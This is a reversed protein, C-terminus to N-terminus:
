PEKEVGLGRRSEGGGEMGRRRVAERGACVGDRGRPQRGRRLLEQRRLARRLVERGRAADGPPLHHLHVPRRRPQRALRGAADPRRRHPVARGPQRRDRRLPLLAGPRLAPDRLRPGPRLSRHLSPHNAQIPAQIPLTQSTSPLAPSSPSPTLTSLLTSPPSLYTSLSRSPYPLEDFIGHRKPFKSKQGGSLQQIRQQEDHKSNFSVSIGVGTYNEVSERQEEDSDEEEEVQQRDTKRQIILRGRGAPVLTGFVTAFERSVQKFTREIAEDKRQDLVAILEEISQQSSDLEERRKTLTERQNTFQEYQQFAKKNVHSYKKLAENVKQLRSVIDDPKMKRYKAFAEQPLMGLDRIRATVEAHQKTLESKKQMSRTLRSQQKEIFKAIDEQQQRIEARRQELEEIESKAQDISEELQRQRRGTRELLKDLKKLEEKSEILKADSGAEATEYAQANLQDLRPRLHERLEIELTTKRSELESRKSSVDTYRRRLDKVMTALNELQTEEEQTLAKKFETSIEARHASQQDTLIKINADINDLARRRSDLEDMRNQLSSTQGFLQHRIPGYNNEQRQKTQELKQLEGKVVTIEQHKREVARKVEDFRQKQAEHERRCRTVNRIAEIRSRKRNNAGGSLAGKKDSKDGDLTVASVGHSRAYQSAISLNPCIITKGFVQRFANEYLPDFQIKEMMPIADSAKPLNAHKPRLRNLPMFTIRGSREKQLIELVRSATEDNDVVYHFLSNGATEEVATDFNRSIEMLEGLTGYVGELNHTRKIRRVAALGRSTNADMRHSIEREAQDLEKGLNLLVSNLKAEERWLERHDFTLLIDQLIAM